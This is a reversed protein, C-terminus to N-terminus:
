ETAQLVQMYLMCVNISGEVSKLIEQWSKVYVCGENKTRQKNLPRETFSFHFLQNLFILTHLHCFRLFTPQTVYLIYPIKM